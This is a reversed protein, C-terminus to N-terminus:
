IREVQCSGLQVDGTLSLLMGRVNLMYNRDM